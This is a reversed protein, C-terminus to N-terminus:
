TLGDIESARRRALAELTLEARVKELDVVDNVVAATSMLKKIGDCAEWVNSFDKQILGSNVTLFVRVSNKKRVILIENFIEQNM